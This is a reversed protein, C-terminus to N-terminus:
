VEERRTEGALKVLRGGAMQFINSGTFDFRILEQPVKVANWCNLLLVEEEPTFNDDVLTKAVFIIHPM